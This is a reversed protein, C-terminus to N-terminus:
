LGPIQQSSGFLKADEIQDYLFEELERLETEILAMQNQDRFTGTWTNPYKNSLEKIRKVTAEYLKIRKAKEKWKHLTITKIDELAKYWVYFNNSKRAETADILHEGLLTAYIQRLDYAPTKGENSVETSPNLATYAM